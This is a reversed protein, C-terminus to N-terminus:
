DSKTYAFRLLPRRKKREEPTNRITADFTQFIRREIDYSLLSALAKPVVNWTSFVLRKSLGTGLAAEWPGQAEYYSLSPPMWLLKWLEGREVWELLSRLRANAPDVEAYSEIEKWSLLVGQSAALLQVLRAGSSRGVSAVVETKLKYDDMFSLLYPASKWYELVQPQDVARGIEELALFGRVDGPTLHLGACPVELLMGTADKTAKLRETRCMVRRLHTEIEEKARELAYTGDEVRYLAQRYDDLLTRFSGSKRLEPDLFEVTRLFDQYHDEEDSEHHLTYMKYPTASLLLLRVHSVADSYTFLDKALRAAEDDGDLIDKFRQFEDLIVLDPELARVCTEALLGRLRGIFAARESRDESPVHKRRRHFRDCLALYQKRLGEGGWGLSKGAQRLRKAFARALAPDIQERDLFDDLQRRWASAVTVGGQFLNMPGAGPDPWVRQVLHYLLAREDRRGLSSKLDFSTGPTFSLYNVKNDRLGRIAQPLLTLRDAKIFESSGVQLRRLNQTAIQSNSCIYVVDIRDIGAWLHEIAKAIVGRAVLTKGLGVEDAVLFRRTSDEACYLRDFAYEVTDRQFGKLRSLVAGVDPPGGGENHSM